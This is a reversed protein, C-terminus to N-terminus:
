GFISQDPDIDVLAIGLREGFQCRDQLNVRVHELGLGFLLLPRRQHFAVAIEAEADIGRRRMDRGVFDIGFDLGFGLLSSPAAHRAADPEIEDYAALQSTM